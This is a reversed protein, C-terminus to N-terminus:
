EGAPESVLSSISLARQGDAGGHARGSAVCEGDLGDDVVLGRRSVDRRAAL